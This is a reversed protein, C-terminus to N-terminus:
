AFRGIKSGMKLAKRIDNEASQGVPNNIIINYTVGGIGKVDQANAGGLPVFTGSKDPFYVEKVGIMYPQGAIGAGGSDRRQAGGGGSTSGRSNGGGGGENPREPDGESARGGAGALPAQETIEQRTHATVNAIAQAENNSAALKEASTTAEQLRLTEADVKRQEALM